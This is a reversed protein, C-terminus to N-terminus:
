TLTLEIAPNNDTVRWRPTLNPDRRWQEAPEIVTLQSDHSHTWYRYESLHANAIDDNPGFAVGIALTASPDPRALRQPGSPCGLTVSDAAVTLQQEYSRASISHRDIVCNIRQPGLTAYLQAIPAGTTNHAKVLAIAPGDLDRKHLRRVDPRYPSDPTPGENQQLRYINRDPFREFLEINQESRDVAYLVRGRLDPQNMMSGRPHLVYAGDRSRPLVVVAPETVSQRLVQHEARAIESARYNHRITDPFEMATVVLLAAVVVYATSRHREGLSV